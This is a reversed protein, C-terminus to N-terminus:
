QTKIEIFIRQLEKILAPIDHYKVKLSTLLSEKRPRFILSLVEKGCEECIMWDEQQLYKRIRPQCICKKCESCYIGGCQVKDVNLKHMM